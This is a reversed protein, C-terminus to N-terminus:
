ASVGKRKFYRDYTENYVFQNMVIIAFKYVYIWILKRAKFTMYFESADEKRKM